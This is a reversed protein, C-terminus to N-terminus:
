EYDKGNLSRAVSALWTELDARMTTIRERHDPMNMLNHTEFPDESLQYLEFRAAEKNKGHIRHLKWDGDLWAAHGPFRDEEYTDTIEGADLRLKAPDAPESGNEQAKLLENMWEHSPLRKGSITYDWFGIPQRRPTDEGSFLPLLSVGDLPPQKDIQVGAIELLTPYIDSTM